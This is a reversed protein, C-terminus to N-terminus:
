VRPCIFSFAVMAHPRTHDVSADALHNRHVMDRVFCYLQPPRVHRWGTVGKFAPTLVNTGLCKPRLDRFGLRREFLFSASLPRKAECDRRKYLRRHTVCQIVNSGTPVPPKRKDLLVWRNNSQEILQGTFCFETNQEGRVASPPRRRGVSQRLRAIM